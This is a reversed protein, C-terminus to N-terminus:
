SARWLIVLWAAVVAALALAISKVGQRGTDGRIAAALGLVIAIVATSLAVLFLLLSPLIVFNTYFSQPKQYLAIAILLLVGTTQAARWAWRGLTAPAPRRLWFLAGVLVFALAAAFLTTVM